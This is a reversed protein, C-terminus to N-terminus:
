ILRNKKALKEIGNIAVHVNTCPNNSSRMYDGCDKLSQRKAIKIARDMAQKRKPTLLNRYDGTKDYDPIHRSLESQVDRCSVHHNIERFHLLYWLEFCPNSLAVIINNKEALDIAAEIDKQSNNDVDFVCIAIDGDEIDLEDERIRKECNEMLQLANPRKGREPRIEINLNRQKLGNFYIRETEGETIVIAVNRPLRNNGLRPSLESV